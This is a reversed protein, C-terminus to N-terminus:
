VLSTVTRQLLVVDAYNAGTHGLVLEDGLVQWIAASAAAASAAPLDLAAVRGRQATNGDVFAGAIPPSGVGDAGDSAVCLATFPQGDLLIALRLALDRMRGGPRANPPLALTPEGAAILWGGPPLEEYQEALSAAVALMDGDLSTRRACPIQAAIADALAARPAIM